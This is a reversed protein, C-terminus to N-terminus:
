ADLCGSAKKHKGANFRECLCYLKQTKKSICPFLPYYDIMREAKFDTKFFLYIFAIFSSVFSYM